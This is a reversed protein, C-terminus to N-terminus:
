ISEIINKAEEYGKCVYASIGDCKNLKELWDKQFDSVVGRKTRKLEIFILKSKVIIMMDPVGPRVGIAKNKMKVAWSKTFTDLPLASFKYGKIELYRVLLEQEQRESLCLNDSSTKKILM